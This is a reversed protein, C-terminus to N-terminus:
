PAFIDAVPQAQHKTDKTGPNPLLIALKITIELGVKAVM